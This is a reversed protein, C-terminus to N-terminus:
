DLLYPSVLAKLESFTFEQQRFDEIGKVKNLILTAPIAGDWDASIAEIQKDGFNEVLVVENIIENERVFPIVKDKLLKPDDLSVFIVEIKNPYAKQLNEFYPMEEICPKCWTAWFNYIYLKDKDNANILNQFKFFSLLEVTKGKANNIKQKDAESLEQEPLDKSHPLALSADQEDPANNECSLLLLIPFLLLLLKKSM